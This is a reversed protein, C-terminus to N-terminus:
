VAGSHCLLRLCQMETEPKFGSQIVDPQSQSDWLAACLKVLKVSLPTDCRAKLENAFDKVMESTAEGSSGKGATEIERVFDAWCEISTSRLRLCHDCLSTRAM